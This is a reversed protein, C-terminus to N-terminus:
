NSLEELSCELSTSTSESTPVLSGEHPIDLDSTSDSFHACDNAYVEGSHMNFHLQSANSLLHSLDLVFNVMILRNSIVEVHTASFDDLKENIGSGDPATGQIANEEKGLFLVFDHIQSMADALEKSIGHIDSMAPSVTKSSLTIEVISKTSQPVVANRMEQVIERLDEQIRERDAEKSLSELVTSIRSQLKMSISTNTENHEKLQSDPSTTVHMSTDVKTTEPRANNPIDPSLVAGNADSSQYALKEMELFDDMLDLHSTENHEKLQSDPSTTVHMSTDVKTTEPRANNPIDPSLVAGNADSSQYALKEMELFDDMLDLHSASESKHPSDSNKEKKVNSLDSRLATTWSSACSVNDDNGDESM